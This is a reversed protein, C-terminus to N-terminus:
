HYHDGREPVLRLGSRLGAAKLKRCLGVPGLSMEPLTSLLQRITGLQVDGMLEDKPFDKEFVKLVIRGEMSRVEFSFNENWVPNPGKRVATSKVVQKVKIDM